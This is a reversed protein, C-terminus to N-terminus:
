KKAPNAMERRKTELLYRVRRRKACTSEIAKQDSNDLAYLELGCSTSEFKHPLLRALAGVKDQTHAFNSAAGCLVGEFPLSSVIASFTM